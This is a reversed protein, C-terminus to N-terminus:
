RLPNRYCYADMKDNGYFVLCINCRWLGGDWFGDTKQHCYACFEGSIKLDPKSIGRHHPIM